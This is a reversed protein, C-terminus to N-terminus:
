VGCRNEGLMFHAITYGTYPCLNCWHTDGAKRAGSELYQIFIAFELKSHVHYSARTIKQSIKKM